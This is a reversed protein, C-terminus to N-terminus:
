SLPERAFIADLLVLEHEYVANAVEESHTTIIL